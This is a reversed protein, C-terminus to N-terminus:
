ASLILFRQNLESVGGNSLHCFGRIKKTKYLGDAAMELRRILNMNRYLKLMEEKSTEVELSPAEANYMKFSSEPLTLHITESGSSKKPM